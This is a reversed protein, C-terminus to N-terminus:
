CIYAHYNQTGAVNSFPVAANQAQPLAAPVATYEGDNASGTLQCACALLLVIHVIIIQVSKTSQGHKLM